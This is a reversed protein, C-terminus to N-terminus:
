EECIQILKFRQTKKQSLHEKDSLTDKLVGKRKKEMINQGDSNAPTEVWLFVTREANAQASGSSPVM